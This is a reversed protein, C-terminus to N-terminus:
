SKPNNGNLFKDILKNLDISVKFLYIIPVFFIIIFLSAFLKGITLNESKLM